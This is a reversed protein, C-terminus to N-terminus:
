WEQPIDVADEAIGGRVEQLNNDTAPLSSLLTTKKLVLCSSTSTGM